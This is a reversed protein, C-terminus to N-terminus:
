PPAAVTARGATQRSVFFDRAQGQVAEIPNDFDLPTERMAFPAVIPSEFGSTQRQQVLAVHGAMPYFWGGATITGNPTEVNATFPGPATVVAGETFDTPGAGDVPVGSAALVTEGAPAGITEDLGMYQFLADPPESSYLPDDFFYHLASEPETDELIMRYVGLLPNMCLHRDVEDFTGEVGVLPGLLLSVGARFGPGHCATEVLSGPGVSFAVAALGERATAVSMGTWSGFSLGLWFIQDSAFALGTLSPEVAAIADVNGEQLFRVAAIGDAIRQSGAGHIYGPHFSLGPAAGSVGQFRLTADSGDHEFLGDPGLDGGRLEHNEDTASPARAGLQFPDTSLTAIGSAALTNGVYLAMARTDPQGTHAMAVPLATPDIGVPIVLAFPVDEMPGAEVEGDAGRRVFGIDTGSGEVIRPAAFSGLIVMDIADHTIATEGETGAAARNDRGPRSAEPTGLLDDLTGDSARYVRDVVAVPAPAAAEVAALQRLHVSTDRTSYVALSVVRDRAVGAVELADLAPGVSARVRDAEPTPGSVEDRAARFLESPAVATGDAATLADTIAAVYTTSPELPRLGSPRLVVAADESAWGVDIPVFGGEGDLRMLLVPDDASAGGSPGADAPVSSPDLDGAIPFSVPCSRCFGDLENVTEVISRWLDSDVPPAGVDLTGDVGLHLEHPFPITSWAIPGSAPVEFTAVAGTAGGDPPRPGDDDGCGAVLGLLVSLFLPFARM